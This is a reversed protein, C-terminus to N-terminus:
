KVIPFGGRHILNCGSYQRYYQPIMSGSMQFNPLATM